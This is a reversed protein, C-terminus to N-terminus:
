VEKKEIIYPVLEDGGYFYSDMFYADKDAKLRLKNLKDLCREFVEFELVVEAGTFFFSVLRGVIEGEDTALLSGAMIKKNRLYKYSLKEIYPVLAM